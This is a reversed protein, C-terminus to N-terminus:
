AASSQKDYKNSHQMSFHTILATRPKSTSHQTPTYVVPTWGNDPIWAKAAVAEAKNIPAFMLSPVCDCALALEVLKSIKHDFNGNMIQSLYGKSVGLKEAFKTMSMNNDALFNHVLDFLEL